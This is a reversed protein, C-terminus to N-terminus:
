GPRLGAVEKYTYPLAYEMYVPRRDARKRHAGCRQKPGVAAVKAHNEKSERGERRGSLGARHTLIWQMSGCKDFGDKAAIRGKVGLGLVSALRAESQYARPGGPLFSM